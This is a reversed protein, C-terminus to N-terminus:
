DKKSNQSNAMFVAFLAFGVGLFVWPALWLAYTGQTVPPNLLVYDGYRSHIFELVAEDGLGEKLKERVLNRLDKALGAPSDNISEAQCVMCRLQEGLKVARQELLPDALQEGAEIAFCAVPFLFAMVACLVSLMNKNLILRNLM